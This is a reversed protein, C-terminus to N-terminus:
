DGQRNDYQKRPPLKEANKIFVSEPMGYLTEVREISVVKCPTFNEATATLFKVINKEEMEPIEFTAKTPTDTNDFGLVSVKLTIVTRTVLKEKRM